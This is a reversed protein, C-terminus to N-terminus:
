TRGGMDMRARTLGALTVRAADTVAPAAGVATLAAAHRATAAGDGILAVNRGLWYPRMAALELGILLGSLRARAVGPDLGHLLGEARLGFLRVSLQAPDTM